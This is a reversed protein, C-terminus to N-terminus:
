FYYFNKKYCLIKNSISHESPIHFHIQYGKYLDNSDFLIMEGFDYGIKLTKGTNEIINQSRKTLFENM